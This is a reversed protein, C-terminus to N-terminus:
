KLAPLKSRAQATLRYTQNRSNPKDPTGLEVWGEAVLKNVLKSVFGSVKERGIGVAIGKKGLEGNALLTIIQLETDSGFEDALEISNLIRQQPFVPSLRVVVRLRMGVEQFEPMPLKLKEAEKFMRQVGSGWQEILDLERFVHAIVPNRVRSVGQTIDEVTLGPMLIGANEIEIRDDFYSVRMPAGRQSYDAHVLANIIAERLIILPISWVDKRRIESFDAGRNAHKKLFALVADVCDPLPLNIESHDFIESKDTGVFRGCQVWADPFVDLRNTGFLLIAGNSPSLSGQNRQLLKLSVLASEDIARRSGFAASIAKTDVDAVTYESRISEDFSRSGASRKLEAITDFDVQRNTSGLRVYTGKEIGDAKLFHPRLGSPFVEIILLSNGNISSVGINPMLRPEISDSFLDCLREEADLPNEVSFITKDDAVGVIITGGASNAFAIITKLIPKPSSLDRKFELTKGENKKLLEEISHLM